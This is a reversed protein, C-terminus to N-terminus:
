GVLNNRALHLVRCKDRNFWIKIIMQFMAWQIWQWWLETLRHATLLAMKVQCPKCTHGHTYVTGMLSAQVAEMHLLFAWTSPKSQSGISHNPLEWYTCFLLLNWSQCCWGLTNPDKDHFFSIKKNKLHKLYHNSLQQCLGKQYPLSVKLNLQRLVVQM